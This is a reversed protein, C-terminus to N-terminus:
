IATGLPERVLTPSNKTRYFAICWLHLAQWGVTEALPVFCFRSIKVRGDGGDLAEIVVMGSM